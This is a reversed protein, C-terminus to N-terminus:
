SKYERSSKLILNDLDENKLSQLGGSTKLKGGMNGTRM